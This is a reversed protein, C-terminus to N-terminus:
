KKYTEIEISRDTITYGKIWKESKYHELIRELKEPLRSKQMKSKIGCGEYITTFLITRTHATANRIRAIRTFLYDELMLNAATMSIPSELLAAPITTIQRRNEAFTMLRPVEIIHIVDDVLIGNVYGEGIATVLLPFSEIIKDYKRYLKVEKQNDITVRGMSIFKVSELIKDRDKRSPTGRGGMARYIQATTVFDLGQRKLNAVAIFVRKDYSGLDRSIRVGELEEFDITVCIDAEKRKKADLDSEAKLNEKIGRELVGRWITNNVKDIPYKIEKLRKAKIIPLPDKHETKGKIEESQLIDSIIEIFDDRLENRVNENRFLMTLINAMNFITSCHLEDATANPTEKQIEIYTSDYLGIFAKRVDAYNEKIKKTFGKKFETASIGEINDTLDDAPTGNKTGNEMDKTNDEMQDTGKKVPAIM